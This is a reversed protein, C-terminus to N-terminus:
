IIPPLHRSPSIVLHRSPSIPLHSTTQEQRGAGHRQYGVAAWGGLEHFRSCKKDEQFGPLYFNIIGGPDMLQWAEAVTPVFSRRRVARAEDKRPSLHPPAMAQKIATQATRQGSRWVSEHLWAIDHKNVAAGVELGESGM